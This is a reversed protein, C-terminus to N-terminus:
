TARCWKAGQSSLKEEGVGGNSIQGRALAWSWLPAVYRDPQLIIDNVLRGQDWLLRGTMSSEWIGAFCRDKLIIGTKETIAALAILRDDPKTPKQRSYQHVLKYWEEFNM